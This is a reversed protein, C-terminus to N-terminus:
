FLFEKGSVFNNNVEAMRYAREHWGDVVNPNEVSTFDRFTISVCCQLPTQNVTHCAVIVIDM